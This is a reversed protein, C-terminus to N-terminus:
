EEKEVVHQHYVGGLLFPVACGIFVEVKFEGWVFSSIGWAIIAALALGVLAGWFAFIALIASIFEDM